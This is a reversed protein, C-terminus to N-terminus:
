TVPRRRVVNWEGPPHEVLKITEGSGAEVLRGAYDPQIPLQRGGRDVLVALEVGEPRGYDFLANLAARITRGTFLVDDVLIIRRNDISMALDTAGVVPNPAITRLDDRYFTIDLYGIPIEVQVAAQLQARLLRAVVAGGRRIGVLVRKEPQNLNALIKGAMQQIVTRTEDASLLMEERPSLASM